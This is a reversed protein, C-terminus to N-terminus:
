VATNFSFHKYRLFCRAALTIAEVEASPNGVTQECKGLCIGCKYKWQAVYKKKFPSGKREDFPDITIKNISDYTIALKTSM